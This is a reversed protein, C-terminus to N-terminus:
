WRKMPGFRRYVEVLSCPAVVWFVAMKTSAATLVVFRVFIFNVRYRKKQIGYEISFTATARSTFGSSPCVPVLRWWVNVEYAESFFACYIFVVTCSLVQVSHLMFTFRKNCPWQVHVLTVPRRTVSVSV